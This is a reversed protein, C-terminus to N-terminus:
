TRFPADGETAARMEEGVEVLVREHPDLDPILKALPVGFMTHSMASMWRTMAIAEPEAPLVTSMLRRWHFTDHSAMRRVEGARALYNGAERAFPAPRQEDGVARMAQACRGYNDLPIGLRGVPVNGVHQWHTEFREWPGASKGRELLANGIMGFAVALHSPTRVERIWDALKEIERTNGSALALAVWYGHGMIRYIEAAQLYLSAARRPEVLSWCSAATVLGSAALMEDQSWERPLQRRDPASADNAGELNTARRLHARAMGEHMEAVDRVYRLDFETEAM